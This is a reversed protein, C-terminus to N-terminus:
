GKNLNILLDADSKSNLNITGLGSILRAWWFDNPLAVRLSAHVHTFDLCDGRDYVDLSNSNYVNIHWRWFSSVLQSDCSQAFSGPGAM